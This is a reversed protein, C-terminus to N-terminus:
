GTCGGGGGYGGGIPASGGGGGGAQGQYIFIRKSMEVEIERLDMACDAVGHWDQEAIKMKLYELYIAKREQPTMSVKQLYFVVEIWLQAKEKSEFELPQGNERVFFWIPAHAYQVEVRFKKGNSIM